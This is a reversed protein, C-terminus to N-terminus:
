ALLPIKRVNDGLATNLARAEARDHGAVAVGHPVVLDIDEPQVGAHHLAKRIAISIGTAQEEPQIFDLSFNNSAGFGTVEAYIKAGRRRAHELEELIVIGGGEGVVMGDADRDFPRYGARPQDNYHTSVRHIMCQRMLAMPNVKCEAGGAVMVDAKGQAITHHAEGVSLLGSTEACTICNNPGQLDHVISIHCNLMNPLYKLLWLPTLYEMGERGWKSLSFRGDEIAYVAAAGLEVLDCCILGAGINVGSRTPEIDVPGDHTGRSKLGADRIADDAAVIALEIDRSMLKVAKRHSKPVIKSMQLAPSEGGIRCPFESPDFSKIVDIGVVGDLMAEFCHRAGLGLANVLGVGTIVVRRQSM